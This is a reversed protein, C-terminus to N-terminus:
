RAMGVAPRSSTRRYIAGTWAWSRGLTSTGTEYRHTRYLALSLIVFLPLLCSCSLVLSSRQADHGLAKRKRRRWGICVPEPEDRVLCRRSSCRSHRLQGVTSTLSPRFRLPPSTSSVVQRSGNRARPSRPSHLRSWKWRSWLQSVFSLSDAGTGWPFLLPPCVSRLQRSRSSRLSQSSLKDAAGQFGSITSLSSIQSDIFPSFALNFGAYGPTSLPQSIMTTSTDPRARRDKSSV